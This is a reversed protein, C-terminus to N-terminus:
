WATQRCYPIRTYRDFYGVIGSHVAKETQTTRSVTGDKKLSGDGLGSAAGRNRSEGAADKLAWYSEAAMIPPVIGQLYIALLEGRPVFVECTEEILLEAEKEEYLKGENAAIELEPKETKLDIRKM